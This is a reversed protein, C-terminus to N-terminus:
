DHDIRLILTMCIDWFVYMSHEAVDPAHYGSVEVGTKAIWSNEIMAESDLM